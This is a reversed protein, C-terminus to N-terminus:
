IIKLQKFREEIALATAVMGGFHNFLKEIVENVSRAGNNDIITAKSDIVAVYAFPKKFRGRYAFAIKVNNDLTLIDLTKIDERETFIGQENIKDLLILTAHTKM